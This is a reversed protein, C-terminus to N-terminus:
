VCTTVLGPGLVAVFVTKVSVVGGFVVNTESVGGAVPHDVQVVGVTPLAPVIVQLLEANAGPDAEKVRLTSTVEPVVAPVTILSVTVTLEETVSGLEAFLLAVADSTTASDVCASRTVVLVARGIVTAAPLLTV